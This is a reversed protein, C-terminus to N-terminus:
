KKGHKIREEIKKEDTFESKNFKNKSVIFTTFGGDAVEPSFTYDDMNLTPYSYTITKPAGINIIYSSDDARDKNTVRCEIERKPDFVAKIEMDDHSCIIKFCHGFLELKVDIFEEKQSDYYQIKNLIVHKLLIDKEFIDPDSLNSVSSNVEKIRTSFTNIFESPPLDPNNLICDNILSKSFGDKQLSAYFDLIPKIGLISFLMLKEKKDSVESDTMESLSNLLMWKLGTERFVFSTLFNDFSILNHKKNISNINKWKILDAENDWIYLYLEGDDNEYCTLDYEVDDGSGEIKEGIIFISEFNFNM